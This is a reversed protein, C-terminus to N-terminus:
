PKIEEWTDPQPTRFTIRLDDIFQDTFDNPFAVRLKNRFEDSVHLYSEKPERTVRRVPTFMNSAYEYYHKCGKDDSKILLYVEDDSDGLEYVKGVTVAWEPDEDPIRVCRAGEAGGWTDRKTHRLYIPDSVFDRIRQRKEIKDVREILKDIAKAFSLLVNTSPAFTGRLERKTFNLFTDNTAM